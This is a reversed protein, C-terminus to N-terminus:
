LYLCFNKKRAASKCSSQYSSRAKRRRTAIGALGLGILMLACTGPEPVTGIASVIEIAGGTASELYDIYASFLNGGM